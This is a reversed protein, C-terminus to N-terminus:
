ALFHRNFVIWICRHVLAERDAAQRVLHEVSKLQGKHRAVGTHHALHCLIHTAFQFEGCTPECRMNRVGILVCESVTTDRPQKIPM